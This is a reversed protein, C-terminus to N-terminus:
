LEKLFLPNKPLLQFVKTAETGTVQDFGTIEISWFITWHVIKLFFCYWLYSFIQLQKLLFEWCNRSYSNRYHFFFTQLKRWCWSVINSMEDLNQWGYNLRIVCPGCLFSLRGQELGREGSMLHQFRNTGVIFLSM